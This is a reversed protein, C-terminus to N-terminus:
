PPRRVLTRGTVPGSTSMLQGYRGAARTKAVMPRMLEELLDGMEAVNTARGGFLQDLHAVVPTLECSVLEPSLPARGAAAIGDRMTKRCETILSDVWGTSILAGRQWLLKVHPWRRQQYRQCRESTRTRPERHWLLSWPQMRQPVGCDDCGFSRRCVGRATGSGDSNPFTSSPRTTARSQALGTHAGHFIYEKCARPM